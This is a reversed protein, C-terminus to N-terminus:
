MSIFSLDQGLSNTYDDYPGHAKRQASDCVAAEELLGERLAAEVGHAEQQVAVHLYVV